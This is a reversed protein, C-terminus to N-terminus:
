SICLRKILRAIRRGYEKCSGLLREDPNGVSVPGYHDGGPNGQIIMGHVLLAEIISILTTENGGAIGGSSTFAGGVKGELKGHFKVSEDLLKKIEGAPLGYYTPSGLIIGDYELLEEVKTEKVDKVVVDVGEERMGDEISLAMKKTNGTRSYYVILVKAM